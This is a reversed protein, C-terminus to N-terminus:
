TKLAAIVALERQANNGRAKEQEQVWKAGTNTSSEHSSADGGTSMAQFYSQPLESLLKVVDRETGTIKDSMAISSPFSLRGAGELVTEAGKSRDGSHKIM